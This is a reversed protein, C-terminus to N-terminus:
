KKAKRSANDEIPPIKRHQGTRGDLYLLTGDHPRQRPDEFRVHVKPLGHRREDLAKWVAKRKLRPDFAHNVFHIHAGGRWHNENDAIDEFSFFFCHWVDSNAFM